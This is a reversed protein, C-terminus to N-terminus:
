SRSSEKGGPRATFAGTARALSDPLTYAARFLLAISLLQFPVVAENWQTGLVIRIIEPAFVFCFASVPLSALSM